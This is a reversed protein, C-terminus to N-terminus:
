NLTNRFDSVEKDARERQWGYKEQL